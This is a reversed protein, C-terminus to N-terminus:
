YSKLSKTYPNKNFATLLEPDIREGMITHDYNNKDKTLGCTNKGHYLNYTKNSVPVRQNIIDHEIKKVEVNIKDKGNTVKTGQTTPNRGKLTGERVINTRANYATQYVTPRKYMSSASGEYEYDSTFQRNTNPAEKENTLYGLGTSENNAIGEYEYDSTFQRNTNPAEMKNTLYAANKSINNINGTRVDHINTEKLTTKAIDNPDYTTLKIPGKLNGTRVDHINTEKITTKAIDNPDKVVGKQNIAVNGTRVDHINTEKITTRFKMEEQDLVTGNHNNTTNINGTRIDHINTEKITTRAVDNPDYAVGKQNTGINGSRNDHINTEKITTRTVDNPDYVVGKQNSEINGSRTDHINTEKITTRTVDNPDYVTGRQNSELNGSRTDHINTEKITTRTIDNPDYVIGRQNSGLNGSRTDHINTEKITTRTIDNPDYVTGRQNIGLNGSRTDHINTEKITTRTIDNPDYVTGRQNIGLNGSRTDHINTEKITTRTVDNPDYVTGRQNIDLNGSRTDHINTEKITTRTVDNPDYAVGRQNSEINGSRTDHINTEKITTRTVDNPDYAVGRQNSEINGSRTDHINTEKITTKLVDNADWVVNKTINSNGMNGSQRINGISNEKKTSKITDLIPAMLAKVISTLNTTHVRTGTIDRENQPLNISKKGYDGFQENNWGDKDFANRPGDTLFINKSSKKYLSRVTENKQVAPAASPTYERSIKRNTDKIIINTRKTPKLNAGTTILYNDKTQEKFTVPKHNFVKGSKGVKSIYSKGPIVRGNYTIKPNSEARLEDINKPLIYERSDPNFGGSPKATYGKNLGPGVIISEFPLQNQKYDTLSIRNIITDQYNKTGQTSLDKSPEFLPAAEKKKQTFNEIGTHNSLINNPKNIDINQKVNSGFFPVMNNHNNKYSQTLINGAEMERESIMKPRDLYTIFSNFNPPIINTNIADKAENFNRTVLESEKNKINDLLKNDNINKRLPDDFLNVDKLIKRSTINDNNLMYGSSLVSGTLLNEM